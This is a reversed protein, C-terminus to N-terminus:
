SSSYVGVLVCLGRHQADFSEFSVNGVVVQFDDPIFPHITVKSKATGSRHDHVKVQDGLRSVKAVRAVHVSHKEFLFPRALRL